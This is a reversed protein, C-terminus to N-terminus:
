REQVYKIQEDIFRNWLTVLPLLGAKLWTDFSLQQICSLDKKEEFNTIQIDYETVYLGIQSAHKVNPINLSAVGIGKLSGTDHM